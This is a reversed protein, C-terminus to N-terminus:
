MGIDREITRVTEMFALAAPSLTRGRKTIFGYNLSLWPADFPLTVLRKERLEQEIQGKIAAGLGRGALVIEKAAAFTEVLIRPHFRDSDPDFSGFPKDINPFAARIRGPYSPGVWPYELLDELVVGKKLALPHDAACFFIGQSNRVAETRLDPDREAESIEALGLDIRNELVGEGIRSWDAISLEITLRHHQATLVGIARTASINAPYAGAAVRLEGIEMGKALTIERMLEHFEAAAREGHRLVIEGFLTPTVGQRDFLSVGLDAELQKLSRTLAPQSIGLSKAALGFHRQKALAKVIEIQRVSRLM